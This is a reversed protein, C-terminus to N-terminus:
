QGSTHKEDYIAIIKDTLDLSSDTYLLIRQSKEFVIDFGNKKGYDQVIPIIEELIDNTLEAERIQLETKSDKVMREYDRQRRLLDKEKDRRASDSLMMSQKQLVQDLKEIEEKEHLIDDKLKEAEKRFQDTAEKGASSEAVVKQIDVYGLKYEEAHSAASLISVMCLLAFIHTFVYACRKKM